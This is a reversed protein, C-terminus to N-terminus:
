HTNWGFVGCQFPVSPDTVYCTVNRFTGVPQYTEWPNTRKAPIICSPFRVWQGQQFDAACMEGMLIVPLTQEIHQHTGFHPYNLNIYSNLDIYSINGFFYYMKELFDFKKPRM